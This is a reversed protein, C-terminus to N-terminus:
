NKEESLYNAISNGSNAIEIQENQERFKDKRKM